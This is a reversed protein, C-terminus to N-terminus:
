SKEPFGLYAFSAVARKKWSAKPGVFEPVGSHGSDGAPDRQRGQASCAQVLCEPLFADDHSEERRPLM